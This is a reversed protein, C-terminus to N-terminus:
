EYSLPHLTGLSAESFARSGAGVSFGSAGPFFWVFASLISPELFNSTDPVVPIEKASLAKPIHGFIDKFFIRSKM